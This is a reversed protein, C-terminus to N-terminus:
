GCFEPVGHAKLLLGKAEAWFSRQASLLALSRTAPCVFGPCATRTVQIEVDERTPGRIRIEERRPLRDETLTVQYQVRSDELLSPHTTSPSMSSNGAVVYRGRIRVATPAPLGRLM